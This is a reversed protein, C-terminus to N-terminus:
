GIRQPNFFKSLETKKAIYANSAEKPTKHVGLHYVKGDVMLTSSFRNEGIKCVGVFGTKNKQNIASRNQSNHRPEVDRLNCIRNDIRIGNVHDIQNKPWVGYVYFWALRHLRYAKGNVKTSLYGKSTKFGVIDGKSIRNRTVSWTFVGTDACYSLQQKLKELSLTCDTKSM